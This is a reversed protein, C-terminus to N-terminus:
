SSSDRPATVSGLLFGVGGGILIDVMMILFRGLVPSSFAYQFMAVVGFALGVFAGVIAWQHVRPRESWKMRGMLNVRMMLLNEGIPGAAPRGLARSLWHM